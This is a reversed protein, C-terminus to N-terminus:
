VAEGSYRGDWIRTSEDVTGMFVYVWAPGLPGREPNWLDVMRRMFLSGNGEVMDLHALTQEDVRFVEGHVLSERGETEVKIGPYWGLDYLSFGKLSAHHLYEAGKLHHHLRGGRMLTGYVFVNMNTGIPYAM